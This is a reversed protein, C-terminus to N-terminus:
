NNINEVVDGREPLYDEKKEGNVLINEFFLKGGTAGMMELQNQLSLHLHAETTNGSNGCLGLLDGTKVEQGEEVAVTGEKLHAFLIYENNKTLITVMNGTLQAPNLEGPINDHVGKIVKVVKGDCPAIIKKGFAYYNENKSPDGKYSSGDKIILIDYAYKQNTHAVHYNKDVSTGGWFVNWKGEFPLIMETENREIVPIDRNTFQQPRLGIIKNEENLVIRYEFVMKSHEVKYIRGKTLDELFSVQVIEGAQAHLGNMQQTLVEKSIAGKMSSAFTSYIADYTKANYHEQFNQMMADYADDSQGILLIPFMLFLYTLRKIM